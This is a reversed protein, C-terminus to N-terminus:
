LTIAKCHSLLLILPGALCLGCSPFDGAFKVWNRLIYTSSVLEAAQDQSPEANKRITAKPSSLFLRSACCDRWKESGDVMSRIM